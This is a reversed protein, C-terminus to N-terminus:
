RLRDEWRELLLRATLLVVYLRFTSDKESSLGPHSGHPHLRKMLGNIFNKGEGGWENLETSLFGESALRQRRAEGSGSALAPDIANAFDDLLAEFFSRTQSNAAAWNGRGHSDLAQNLHGRSTAFEPRSLMRSIEDEAEAIGLEVPVTRRLKHEVVIFGDKALMARFRAIVPREEIPESWVYQTPPESMKSAATEVIFESLYEGDALKRLPDEDYMEILDSHRKGVSADEHRVWNFYEPGLDQLFRSFEGQNFPLADVAALVTKRSFRPPKASMLMGLYCNRFRNGCISAPLGTTRV